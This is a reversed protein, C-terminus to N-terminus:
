AASDYDPDDPEPEDFEIAPRPRARPERGSAADPTQFAAAYKDIASGAGVDLSGKRLDQMMKMIRGAAILASIRQPVTVGDTDKDIVVDQEELQELLRAVQQYMRPTVNLPDNEIEKKSLALPKKIPM